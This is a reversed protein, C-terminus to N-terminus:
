SNPIKSCFEKVDNLAELVGQENYHYLKSYSAIKYNTVYVVFTGDNYRKLVNCIRKDLSDLYQILELLKEYM